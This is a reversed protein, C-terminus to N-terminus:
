ESSLNAQLIIRNNSHPLTCTILTLVPPAGATPPQLVTLNSAPTVFVSNVIYDFRGDRNELTILAGPLLEDLRYFFSGYVNRHGAVVCNGAGPPSSNPDHGPGRRLSADDMGQVVFTELNIDPISLRTLRWPPKAAPKARSPSFPLAPSPSHNVKTQPTATKRQKLEREGARGKEGERAFHAALTRQNWVGYLTQGVPWAALILGAFIALNLLPRVFRRM